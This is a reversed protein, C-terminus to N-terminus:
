INQKALVQVVVIWYELVTSSPDDLEVISYYQLVKSCEVVMDISIYTSCTQWGQGVLVNLYQEKTSECM